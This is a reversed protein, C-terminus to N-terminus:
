RAPSIPVEASQASVPIPLVIIGLPQVMSQLLADTYCKYQNFSRELVRLWRGAHGLVVDSTGTPDTLWATVQGSADVGFTVLVCAVTGPPRTCAQADMQYATQDQRNVKWNRDRLALRVAAFSHAAPSYAPVMACPLFRQPFTPVGAIAPRPAIVSLCFAVLFLAYKLNDEV